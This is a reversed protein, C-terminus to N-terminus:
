KSEKIIITNIPLICKDSTTRVLNRGVRQASETGTAFIKM